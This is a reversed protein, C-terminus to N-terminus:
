PLAKPTPKLTRICSRAAASGNRIRRIRCTAEDLSAGAVACYAPTNTKAAIHGRFAETFCEVEAQLEVLASEVYRPTNSPM